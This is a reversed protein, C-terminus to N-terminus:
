GLAARSFPLVFVWVAVAFAASGGIVFLHFVEHYGFVQPCPDPRQLAYIVAGVTYLVGGGLLLGVAPPPLHAAFSPLLVVGIWGMGVYLSATLWRPLHDTFVSLVVGAGAISWMVTLMTTRFSGDLVNVCLPTFTGAILVYINAHDLARLIRETRPQWRGIHYTASVAYLLIMSVGFVLMSLARPRDDGCLAYLTVTTVLAAVAAGAHSWGRLLPKPMRDAAIRSSHKM